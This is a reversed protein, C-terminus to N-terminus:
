ENVITSPLKITNEQKLKLAEVHEMLQKEEESTLLIESSGNIQKTAVARQVIAAMKVLHEDNKVKVDLYQVILPVLIAADGPGQIRNGLSTILESIQKETKKSNNYIDKLIDSFTTKNFVIQNFESM